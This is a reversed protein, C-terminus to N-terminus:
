PTIYPEETTTSRRAQPVSPILVGYVPVGPHSKCPLFPYEPSITGRSSEEGVRCGPWTRWAKYRDETEGLVRRWDPRAGGTSQM